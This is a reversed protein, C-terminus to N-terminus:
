KLIGFKKKYVYMPRGMGGHQIEKILMGSDVLYDLYVRLTVLSISLKEIMFQKDLYDNSNDVLACIKELTIENVGKPFDVQNVSTLFVDLEDQNIENDKKFLHYRLRYKDLAQKIRQFTFPKILYDIAGLHLCRKIVEKEKAATVFIVDVHNYRNRIEELLELGDMKPMYVDLIILDINGGDSTELYKLAEKGNVSIEKVIFSSLREIYEKNIQGVMPDDEVILVNIM